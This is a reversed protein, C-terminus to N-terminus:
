RDEEARTEQFARFRETARYVYDGRAPDWTRQLLGARVWDDLRRRIAFDSV